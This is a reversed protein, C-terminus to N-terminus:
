IRFGPKGTLIVALCNGNRGARLIKGPGMAPGNVVEPSSISIFIFGADGGIVPLSHFLGCTCLVLFWVLSKIIFAVSRDRPGADAVGHGM